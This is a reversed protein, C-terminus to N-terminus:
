KSIPFDINSLVMEKRTKWEGDKGIFDQDIISGSIMMQSGEKVNQAVKDKLDGYAMVLVTVPKSGPDTWTITFQANEFDGEGRVIADIKSKCIITEYRYKRNWNIWRAAYEDSETEIWDIKNTTLRHIAHRLTSASMRWQWAVKNIRELTWNTM